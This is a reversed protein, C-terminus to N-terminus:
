RKASRSKPLLQNFNSWAAFLTPLTLLPRPKSRGESAGRMAGEPSASWPLWDEWQLSRSLSNFFSVSKM